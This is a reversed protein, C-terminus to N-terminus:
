KVIFQDLWVLAPVLKEYGRTKFNENTVKAAAANLNVLIFHLCMSNTCREAKVERFNDCSKMTHFNRARLKIDVSDSASWCQVNTINQTEEPHFGDLSLVAAIRSKNRIKRALEYALASGSSHGVIIVKRDTSLSDIKMSLAQILAQNRNVISNADPGSDGISIAQFEFQDAYKLNKSVIDKWLMVQKETAGFGGIFYVLNKAQLNLSFLFLLLFKM